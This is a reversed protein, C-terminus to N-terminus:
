TPPFSGFGSIWGCLGSITGDEGDDAYNRCWQRAIFLSAAAGLFTVAASVTLMRVRSDNKNHGLSEGAGRKVNEVRQGAAYGKTPSRKKGKDKRRKEKSAPRPPSPAGAGGGPPPTLPHLAM